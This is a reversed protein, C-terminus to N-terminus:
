DIEKALHQAVEPSVILPWVYSAAEYNPHGKPIKVYTFETTPLPQAELERIEELLEEIKEQREKKAQEQTIQQEVLDFRPVDDDLREAPVAHKSLDDAVEQLIEKTLKKSM